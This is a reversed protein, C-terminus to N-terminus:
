ISGIERFFEEESITKVKVTKKEIRMGFMEDCKPCRVLNFGVHNACTHFFTNKCVECTVDFRLISANSNIYLKSTQKSM